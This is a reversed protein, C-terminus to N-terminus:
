NDESFEGVLAIYKGYPQIFAPESVLEKWRIADHIADLNQKVAAGIGGAVPLPKFGTTQQRAPVKDREPTLTKLMKESSREVSSAIDSVASYTAGKVAM